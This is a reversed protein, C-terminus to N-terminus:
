LKGHVGVLTEALQSLRSELHQKRSLLIRLRQYRAIALSVSPVQEAPCHRFWLQGDENLGCLRYGASADHQGAQPVEGSSPSPTEAPITSPISGRMKEVYDMLCDVDAHRFAPAEGEQHTYSELWGDVIPGELYLDQIQRLVQQLEDQWAM